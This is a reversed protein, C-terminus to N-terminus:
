EGAGVHEAVGSCLGTSRQQIEVAEGQPTQCTAVSDLVFCSSTFAFLAFLWLSSRPLEGLIKVATFHYFPPLITFPFITKQLYWSHITFGTAWSM